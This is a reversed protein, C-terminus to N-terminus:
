KKKKPQFIQLEKYLMEYLKQLIVPSKEHKDPHYIMVVKRWLGKDDKSLIINTNNVEKRIKEKNEASVKGRTDKHKAIFKYLGNHKDFLDKDKKELSLYAAYDDPNKYYWDSGKQENKNNSSSQNSGSSQSDQKWWTSQSQQRQKREEEKRKAEERWAREQAQKKRESEKQQEKKKRETEEAKEQRNNNRQERKQDFTDKWKSRKSQKEEKEKDEEKNEEEWEWKEEAHRRDPDPTYQLADLLEQLKKDKDSFNPTHKKTLIDALQNEITKGITIFELFSAFADLLQDKTQIKHDRIDQMIQEYREQEQNMAVYPDPRSTNEEEVHDTQTSDKKGFPRKMCPSYM